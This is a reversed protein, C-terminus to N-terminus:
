IKQSQTKELFYEYNGDYSFLKSDKIEIIRNAVKSIFYRDHSIILLSGKYNKIALELNEKSQLDLHNTPEDLLLFNSPNIIMLALALRAKEGGSLQKIYKFVTENQFGFGGLFTRVKKQSWEPSKNCILDIVREDSSLAEAQNQEYYSTIINHKGLNIDGIEPSIKKMIIKLLTSKGCGNPGLIAIKEGSSIKLNIDLFLIKDEFSHSLNKINLVLKGSRPCEPFNFVPSKSKAIPSEIKSIKKLQKERSKAQSSRTASARFRDIYRKQLEIEKQQLQYAKNQSEENLSKQEVFFSYNGNYTESTGRDVFIIKKCLKDLFYRDHSIIIVAIKLSSLYEELWFITELDLHNTPEDLLLLDPKQLIIKGLAVKMQWGGSFNGVLQDADEISFGLKPLIKEVDSQMKYGGLAEFKAQYKALQNVFIELEDSNKKIDLSKMKNEIELLKIAVIQIDKFSSELEQRVSFNLNCDFEQKLHAIKPNGEKIITGSTQEEEGILIKFQTSKGAGNSGVLGVKEGKKIEWSINKLVVDTSYIKSVSEFRIM